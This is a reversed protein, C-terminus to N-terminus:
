EYQLCTLVMHTSKKCGVTNINKIDAIGTQKCNCRLKTSKPYAGNNTKKNPETSKM